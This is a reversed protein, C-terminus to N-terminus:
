TGYFDWDVSSHNLALEGGVATNTAPPEVFEISDFQISALKYAPMNGINQIYSQGTPDTVRILQSLTYKPSRKSGKRYMILDYKNQEPNWSM